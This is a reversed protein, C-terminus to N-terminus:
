PRSIPQGPQSRVSARALASMEGGIAAKRCAQRAVASQADGSDPSASGLVGHSLKGSRVCSRAARRSITAAHGDNGGSSRVAHRATVRAAERAHVWRMQASYMLLRKLRIHPSGTQTAAWRQVELHALALRQLDRKAPEAAFDQNLAAEIDRVCTQQGEILNSYYCHMWRTLEALQSRLPERVKASLRAASELVTCGLDELPQLRQTPVVPEIATKTLM